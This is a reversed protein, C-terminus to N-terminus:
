DIVRHGGSKESMDITVVKSASHVFIKDCFYTEFAGETLYCGNEKSVAIYCTEETNNKNFSDGGLSIEVNDSIIVKSFDFWKEEDYVDETNYQQTLIYQDENEDYSIELRWMGDRSYATSALLTLESDILKGVKTAKRRNVSVMSVVSFSVLIALVVVVIMLEVLTFGKKGSKKLWKENETSEASKQFPKILNKDCAVFKNQLNTKSNKKM